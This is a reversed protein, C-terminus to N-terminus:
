VVLTVLGLDGIDQKGGGWNGATQVVIVIWGVARGISPYLQGDCDAARLSTRRSLVYRIARGEGIGIGEGVDCHTRLHRPAERHPAM